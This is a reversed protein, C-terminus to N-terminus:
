MGFYSCTVLTLETKVLNVGKIHGCGINSEIPIYMEVNNKHKYLYLLMTGYM